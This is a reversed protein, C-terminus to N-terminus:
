GEAEDEMAACGGPAHGRRPMMVEVQRRSGGPSAIEVRRGPDLGSPALDSSLSKKIKSIQNKTDDVGVPV